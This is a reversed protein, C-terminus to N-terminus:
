TVGHTVVNANPSRALRPVPSSEAKWIGGLSITLAFLNGIINAQYYPDPSPIGSFTLVNEAFWICLFFVSCLRMYAPARPSFAGDPRLYRRVAALGVWIGVGLLLMMGIIGNEYLLSVLGSHALIESDPALRAIDLRSGVESFASEVDFRRNSSALGFGLLLSTSSASIEELMVYAVSIRELLSGGALAFAATVLVPGMVILMVAGLRLTARAVVSDEKRRVRFFRVVRHTLLFLLCGLFAAVGIEQLTGGLYGLATEIPYYIIIVAVVVRLPRLVRARHGHLMHIFVAAALLAPVEKQFMGAIGRGRLIWNGTNAVLIMIASLVLVSAILQLAMEVPVRVFYGAVIILGLYVSFSALAYIWGDGDAGGRVLQLLLYPVLVLVSTHMRASSWMVLTIALAWLAITLAAAAEKPVQLNFYVQGILQYTNLLSLVIVLASSFGGFAPMGGEDPKVPVM